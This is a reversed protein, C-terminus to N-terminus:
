DESSRFSALVGGGETWPPSLLVREASRVIFGVM